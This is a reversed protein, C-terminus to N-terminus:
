WLGLSDVFPVTKEQNNTKDSDDKDQLPKRDMTVENQGEDLYEYEGPDDMNDQNDQEGTEDTDTSFDFPLSEEQSYSDDQDDMEVNDELDADNHTQVGFALISPVAQGNLVKQGYESLLAPDKLTSVLVQLTLLHQGKILGRKPISSIVEDILSVVPMVTPEVFSLGILKQRMVKLPSLAKHSVETKCAYVKTWVSQAEKAIEGFLTSGLSDVENQLRDGVQSQDPPVVKYFQWNFSLRNRVQEASVPSDEILREWGPHKDVWSKVALDYNNIFEEKASIFDNKVSMLTELVSQTEGDPIAWGGLFRVGVKDLQSVARAKLTSFIRLHEPDCIKKSGLSALEEPPLEVGGFDDATLKKRATWISVNLNVATLQELIKINNDPM